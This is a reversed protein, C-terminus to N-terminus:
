PLFHVSETPGISAHIGAKVHNQTQIQIFPMVPLWGAIHVESARRTETLAQLTPVRREEDIELGPVSSPASGTAIMVNKTSITEEGGDSLAVKIETPSVFSGWGKVYRIKNKKFLGEIGKTLGDVSKTKQEMMKPLDVNIEGVIVGHGGFHKKADYYMHSSQLLAQMKLMGSTLVSPQSTPVAYLGGSAISASVLSYARAALHCAGKIPHM